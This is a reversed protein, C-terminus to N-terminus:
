HWWNASHSDCLKYLKTFRMIKHFGLQKRDKQGSYVVDWSPPVHGKLPWLNLRKQKGEYHGAHTILCLRGTQRGSPNHLVKYLTHTHINTDKGALWDSLTLDDIQHVTHTHKHTQVTGMPSQHWNQVVLLLWVPLSTQFFGHCIHYVSAAVTCWGRARRGVQGHRRGERDTERDTQAPTIHFSHCDTVLTTISPDPDHSWIHLKPFPVPELRHSLATISINKPWFM